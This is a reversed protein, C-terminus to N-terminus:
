YPCRGCYGCESDCATLDHGEGEEDAHFHRDRGVWPGGNLEDESGSDCVAAM